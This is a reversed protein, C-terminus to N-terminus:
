DFTGWYTEREALWDKWIQRKQPDAINTWGLSATAANTKWGPPSSGMGSDINKHFFALREPGDFTAEGKFDLTIDGYLAAVGALDGDKLLQEARAMIHQVAEPDFGSAGLMAAISQPATFILQLLMEERQLEDQTDAIDRQLQENKDSLALDNLLRLENQRAEIGMKANDIFMDTVVRTTADSSAMAMSGQDYIAQGSHTFGMQGAMGQARRQAMALDRAADERIQDEKDALLAPDIGDTGDSLRDWQQEAWTDGASGTEDHWIGGSSGTADVSFPAPTVVPPKYKMGEPGGGRGAGETSEDLPRGGPKSAYPPRSAWPMRKAMDAMGPSAQGISGPNIGSPNTPAESMQRAARVRRDLGGGAGAPPRQSAVGAQPTSSLRPPSDAKIVNTSPFSTPVKPAGKPLGNSQKM